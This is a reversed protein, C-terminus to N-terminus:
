FDADIEREVRLDRRMRRSLVGKVLWRVSSKDTKLTPAGVNGVNLRFSWERIEGAPLSGEPELVVSDVIHDKRVNGFKEIRVMEVRVESVGVERLMEARLNGAVRDGSRADGTSLELTLVCQGHKSEAAALRPQGEDAKAPRVVTVEQSQRIDRGRAVDLSATVAWSIGPDIKSVTAGTLTPLAGAPVVLRASGSHPLGARVTGGEMFSGGERSLTRTRRHYHQGYQSSTMQVYTVTCILKVKGQRVDFDQKPVLTVRARVEDGVQVVTKDVDIQLDAGPRRFLSLM